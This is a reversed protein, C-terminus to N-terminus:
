KMNRKFTSNVQYGSNYDYTGTQPNLSYGPHSAYSFSQQLNNDPMYPTVNPQLQSSQHDQQIQQQSLESYGGYYQLPMAKTNNMDSSSSSASMSNNNLSFGTSANDVNQSNYDVNSSPNMTMNYANYPNVPISQNIDLNGLQQTMANINSNTQMDPKYGSDYSESQNMQPVGFSTNSEVQPYYPTNQYIPNTYGMSVANNSFQTQNNAYSQSVNSLTKSQQSMDVTPYNYYSSNDYETPIQSAPPVNQSGIPNGYYNHNYNSYSSTTNESGLPNPRVPLINNSYSTNIKGESNLYDKLKHGSSKGSVPVSKPHNDVTNTRNTKLRQQREEDQVDHAAKIRSHLKQVNNQLKKYFELGKSCKSLLDEYVDYSASLSSYFHERMAKTDALGKILPACKAYVDTLVNLINEQALINQEIIQVPQHHKELEKKFITEYSTKDECSILIATIDDNSIAERLQTYVQERQKQMEDVKQLINRLSIIAPDDLNISIKPVQLQLQHLPQALIKLNAVHLGMAKRLTENSEGAKAHAENYKLYERNLETMNNGGITRLGGTKEHYKSEDVEEDHLLIKIEALITEVEACIEALNAMSQVLDNIANSKANIAACRDVLGDPLRDFNVHKQQYQQLLELNLSSIFKNLENNKDSIKTSVTRLLSAKEESYLSSIEHTKMPILRQFIDVGAVKPDSTNFPIGNVLNAGKIAPINVLDPIEEHYIFDNENKAIKRKGEIVDTTFILSENIAEMNQLGKSEKKAEELKDMANQYLIVREGMKQMEESEQGQYLYLIASLYSIKFKIYKRFEKFNKNTVIQSLEQGDETNNLLIALASNYYIIIQATVKAILGSKRNDTLSKEMICEQAHALCIQQNFAMLEMSLDDKLVLPYTEKIHGFAWAACQFHTCAIKLSESNTRDEKVGLQTHLAGINYLVAAMEYKLSTNQHTVGTYVDKWSFNLDGGSLNFRHQLSHLQCYYRKVVSLGELDESPHCAARRLSEM